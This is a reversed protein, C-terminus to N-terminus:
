GSLRHRQKTEPEIVKSVEKRGLNSAEGQKKPGDDRSFYHDGKGIM